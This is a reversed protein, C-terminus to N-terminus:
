WTIKLKGDISGDPLDCFILGLLSGVSGFASVITWVKSALKSRAELIDGLMGGTVTEVLRSGLGAKTVVVGAMIKIIMKGLKNNLLFDILSKVISVVVNTHRVLYTNKFIALAINFSKIVYSRFLLYLITNIIGAFLDSKITISRHSKQVLSKFYKKIRQVIGSFIKKFFTTIDKLSFLGLEDAANCPDNKCYTFVNLSTIQDKFFCITTLEDANLFRGIEPDYYRSQLYYM